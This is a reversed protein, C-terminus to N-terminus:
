NGLMLLYVQIPASNKNIGRADANAKLHYDLYTPRVGLDTKLKFYADILQQKRPSRKKKMEELLSVVALDLKFDCTNPLNLTTTDLSKPQEEDDTFVRM